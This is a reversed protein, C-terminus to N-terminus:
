GWGWERPPPSPCSILLGDQRNWSGGLIGLSSPQSFMWTPSSRWLGPPTAGWVEEGWSPPKQVLVM